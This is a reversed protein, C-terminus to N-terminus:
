GVVLRHRGGVAKRVLEKFRNPGMCRQFLSRPLLVSLRWFWRTVPHLALFSDARVLSLYASLSKGKPRLRAQIYTDMLTGLRKEFAPFAEALRPNVKALYERRLEWLIGDIHLQRDLSEPTVRDTNFVNKGHYRYETLPVAIGVVPTIFPVVAMLGVDSNFKLKEPLPFVLNAIERRICIASGFALGAPSAGYQVVFPGYWGSPPDAFSPIVGYRRGEADIRFMRDGVFGSNVHSRFARVVMELKLPLYRDDADLLCVIQGKSERYAANQASSMGGNEKRVLRIRADSSMYREVLDCSQDTSGDDCVIMEFNTYTQALVSEIAESLYAAYNYNATLVSILPYESLTPLDVPKLLQASEELHLEGM